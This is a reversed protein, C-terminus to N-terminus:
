VRSFIVWRHIYIYRQMNHIDRFRINVCMYRVQLWKFHENTEENDNWNNELVNLKYLTRQLHRIHLLVIVKYTNLLCGFSIQQPGM